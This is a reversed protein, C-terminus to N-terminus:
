EGTKTLKINYKYHHSNKRSCIKYRNSVEYRFNGDVVIDGVKIDAVKTDLTYSNVDVAVGSSFDRDGSLQYIRGKIETTGSYTKDALGGTLVQTRRKLILTKNLLAKFSMM